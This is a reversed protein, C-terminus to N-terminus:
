LAPPTDTGTQPHDKAYERDLYGDAAKLGQDIEKGHGFKTKAADGAKGLGQEVKDKSDVLKDKIADFNM